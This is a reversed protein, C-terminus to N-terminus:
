KNNKSFSFIYNELAKLEEDNMTKTITFNTKMIDYKSPDIIPGSEERLFSVISANKEKYIKAIEQISPGIIKQEAQHCAICNGKGEFLTKGFELATEKKDFTQSEEKKCSIFFIITIIFVLERM